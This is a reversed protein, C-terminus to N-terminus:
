KGDESKRRRANQRIQKRRRDDQGDTGRVGTGNGDTVDQSLTSSPKTPPKRKDANKRQVELQREIEQKQRLKPPLLKETQTVGDKVVTIPATMRAIWKQKILEGRQEQTVAKSEKNKRTFTLKFRDMKISAPNKSFMRRQECAIQM